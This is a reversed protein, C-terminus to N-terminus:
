ELENDIVAQHVVIEHSSSGSSALTAIALLAGPAAPTAKPRLMARLHLSVAGCFLFCEAVAVAMDAVATAAMDITAAVMDVVSAIAEETDVVAACQVTGVETVMAVETM